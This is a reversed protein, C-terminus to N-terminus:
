LLVDGSSISTVDALLLEFDARADGNVDARLLVGSDTAKWWVSHGAATKGSWAFMNNTDPSGSRADIGRLDIDDSGKSFNYIIDRNDGVASSYRSGFVFVDGTSDTGGYIRDKGREGNLVDRGSGAFLRDAGDGGSLSDNGSGGDLRDDGTGGELRDRGDGGYISDNGGNGFMSDDGGYGRARDSGSSLRVIDSGSLAQRILSDDDSTSSTMAADFIAKASLSVKQIGWGSEDFSGYTELIGTVTGGTITQSAANFNISSGAFFTSYAGGAWRIEVIDQYTIGNFTEYANDYFDSGSGYSVLRFLNLDDMDFSDRAFLRAM